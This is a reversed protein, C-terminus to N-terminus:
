GGNFRKRQHWYVADAVIDTIQEETFPFGQEGNVNHAEALLVNVRAREVMLPRLVRRIGSTTRDRDRQMSKIAQRMVHQRLRACDLPDCNCDPHRNERHAKLSANIITIDAQTMDLDGVITARALQGELSHRLSFPLQAEFHPAVSM